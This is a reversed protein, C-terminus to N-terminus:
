GGQGAPRARPRKEGLSRATQPGGPRAPVTIGHHRCLGHNVERGGRPDECTAENYRGQPAYMRVRLFRNRADRIRAPPADRPFLFDRSSSIWRWSATSYVAIRLGMRDDAPGRALGGRLVLRFRNSSEQVSRSPLPRRPRSAPGVTDSRAPRPGSGQRHRCDPARPRAQSSRSPGRPPAARSRSASGRSFAARAWSLLPTAPASSPGSVVPRFTVVATRRSGIGM